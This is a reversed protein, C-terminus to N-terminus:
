RIINRTYKYRINWIRPYIRLAEIRLSHHASSFKWLMPYISPHYPRSGLQQPATHALTLVHLFRYNSMWLIWRCPARTRIVRVPYISLQISPHLDGRWISHGRILVSSSSLCHAHAPTPNAHKQVRCSCKIRHNWNFLDDNLSLVPLPFSLHFHLPALSGGIIMM